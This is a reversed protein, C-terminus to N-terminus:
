KWYGVTPLEQMMPCIYCLRKVSDNESGLTGGVVTMVVIPYIKEM